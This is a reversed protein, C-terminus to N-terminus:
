VSTENKKSEHLIKGCNSCELHYDGYGFESGKWFWSDKKKCDVCLAKMVSEDEDLFWYCDENILIEGKPIIGRQRYLLLHNLM